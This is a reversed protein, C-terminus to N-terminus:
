NMLSNYIKNICGDFPFLARSISINQIYYECIGITEGESAASNAKFYLFCPNPVSFSLTPFFRFASISTRLAM